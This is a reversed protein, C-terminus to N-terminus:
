WAKNFEDQKYLSPGPEQGLAHSKWTRLLSQLTNIKRLNLTKEM